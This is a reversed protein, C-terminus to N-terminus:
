RRRRGPTRADLVVDVQQGIYVPLSRPDFSYILQLVRTDTREAAAGTLSTKPQVFPEVRVFRLPAHLQHNGQVFAQGPIGGRVRWADHEDIDVRVDLREDGGMLLVPGAAAAAEAVEGPRINIKLVRGTVPARVTRRAVEADLEHLQAHAAGVSAQAVALDSRRQVLDNRTVFDAMRPDAVADLRRQVAPLGAGAQAIMAVLTARRNLLDRADIRFLPAGRAVQQGWRVDMRDVLGTVPTGVAITGTSAEVIGSGAIQGDGTPPQAAAPRVPVASDHVVLAGAALTGAVALGILIRIRMKM